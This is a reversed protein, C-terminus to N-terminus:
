FVTRTFPPVRIRRKSAFVELEVTSRDIFRMHRALAPKGEAASVERWSHHTTPTSMHTLAWKVDVFKVIATLDTLVALTHGDPSWAMESCPYGDGIEYLHRVLTGDPRELRLRYGPGDLEPREQCVAVLTGDPSAVRHLVRNTYGLRQCGATLAVAFLLVAGSRASSCM